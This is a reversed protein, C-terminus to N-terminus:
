RGGGVQRAVILAADHFSEEPHLRLRQDMAAAFERAAPSPSAVGYSQFDQAHNHVGPQKVRRRNIGDWM